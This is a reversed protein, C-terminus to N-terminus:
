EIFVQLIINSKDNFIEMIDVLANKLQIRCSDDISKIIFSKEHLNGQNSIGKSVDYPLVYFHNSDHDIIRNRADVKLLLM